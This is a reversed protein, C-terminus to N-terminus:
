GQIVHAATTKFMAYVISGEKVGLSALSGNTILALLEVGSEEHRLSLRVLPGMHRLEIVKSPVINRQSAHARRTMSITIDEPRLALLANTGVPADGRGELKLNGVALSLVGGNSRVVSCRIFNKYGLLEAFRRTRPRGDLTSISGTVTEGLRGGDIFLVTEAMAYLADFSHTVYIAGVGDTTILERLREGLEEQMEPDLHSFPEDLLLMSPKMALARAIAVRQQEGGSLTQPRRQGLHAIGMASMISGAYGRDEAGYLVNKEVSMNTFLYPRQLVYGIGRRHAPLSSVQKGNITITGMELPVLGAIADLLTSKGAGNPGVVAIMKSGESRMRYSIPGLVFNSRRVTVGDLHLDVSM